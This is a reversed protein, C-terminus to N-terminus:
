PEGNKLGEAAKRDKRAGAIDGMAQKAAARNRYAQVLRPNLGIAANFDRLANELQKRRLFIAGRGNLAVPLDAKIELARNFDALAEEDRRLRVLCVGRGIYPYPDEPKLRIAENYDSVAAENQLLFQHAQGRNYYALGRKPQQAIVSSFSQIAGQYDGAKLQEQGHSFLEAVASKEEKATKSESQKEAKEGTPKPPPEKRPELPVAPPEVPPTPPVSAKVPPPAPDPLPTAPASISAVTQPPRSWPRWLALGGGALLSAAVVATVLWKGRNSTPNASPAPPAIAPIALTITPRDDPPPHRATQSSIAQDLAGVFEACTSYRSQPAKALAKILATDVPSPLAANQTSPAPPMEHVAKYALVMVPHAGFLTKGTLMEYAVAALSYQDARGDVAPMTFQEPPMYAATGVVFGTPTNTKTDMMRAIGFDM